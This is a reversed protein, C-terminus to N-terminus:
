ENSKIKFQFTINKVGQTITTVAVTATVAVSALAVFYKLNERVSVIEERKVSTDIVM